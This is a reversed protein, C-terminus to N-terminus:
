KLRDNRVYTQYLVQKYTNYQSSPVESRKEVAVFATYPSVVGSRISIATIEAEVDSPKYKKNLSGKEDSALANCIM